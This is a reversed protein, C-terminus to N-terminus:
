GTLSRRKGESVDVPLADEAFTRFDGSCGAVHRGDCKREGANSDSQREVAILDTTAAM